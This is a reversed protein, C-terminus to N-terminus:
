AGVRILREQELRTIFTRVDEHVAARPVGYASSLETEIEPVDVGAAIRDWIEAGIRNLSFYKGEKLDLLVAGDEDILARVHDPIHIKAHM